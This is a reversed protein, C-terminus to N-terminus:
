ARAGASPPLEDDLPDLEDVALPAGDTPAPPRLRGDVICVGPLGIENVHIALRRLLQPSLAEEMAPWSALGVIEELLMPLLLMAAAPSAAGQDDERAASTTM